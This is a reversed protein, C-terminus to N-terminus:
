GINGVVLDNKIKQLEDKITLLEKEGRDAERTADEEKTKKAIVAKEKEKSADAARQNAQGEFRQGFYFGVIGAVIPGYTAAVKEIGAFNSTDANFGIYCFM